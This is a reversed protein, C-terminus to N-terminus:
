HEVLEEILGTIQGDTFVICTGWDHTETDCITYDISTVGDSFKEVKHVLDVIDHATGDYSFAYTGQYDGESMCFSELLKALGYCTTQITYWVSEGRQGIAYTKM